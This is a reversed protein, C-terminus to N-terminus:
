PAACTLAREHLRCRARVTDSVDRFTGAWDEGDKEMLYYGYRSFTFSSAGLGDIQRRAGYIRPLDAKEGIDGGTGVVLQSPRAQGFDIAQFHHV